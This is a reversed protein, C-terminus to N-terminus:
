TFRSQDSGVQTLKKYIYYFMAPGSLTLHILHKKKLKYRLQFSFLKKSTIYDDSYLDFNQSDQALCPSPKM